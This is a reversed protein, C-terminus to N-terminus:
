GDDRKVLEVNGMKKYRQVINQRIEKSRAGMKRINLQKIQQM